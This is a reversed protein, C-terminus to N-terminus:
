HLRIKFVVGNNSNGGNATTGCLNGASDFILGAEPNGGDNGGTFSYLVSETYGGGAAPSLKFVVGQNHAGGAFTTGFLNGASDTILGGWPGAGDNGGTFSYLVSEDYGGSTNSSLKFVTGYDFTGGAGTTSYLNGAGDMILAARPGGGDGLGTFNYLISESYNGGGPALKFVTGAGAFASGAGATTGFLNGASDVILGAIPEGGDNFGSFTYNFGYLVTETYIGGAGPSLQFVVGANDIDGEATTGYLSGVSDLLLGAEPNGGDSGPGFGIGNFSHLVTEIYGGGGAPSLKFVTGKDTNIGGGSLTTGYLNGSRDMVLEAVPRTGDPAGVFSHLVSETYGHSATPALMFVAGNGGSGGGWTTGYLNGSIDMMLAAEPTAADPSGLFSYLVQEDSECAVQVNTVVGSITGSGSSVSCLQQNPESSVTVSYSGGYPLQTNFTFTGNTSLTLADAGNDDLMIQAGSNLGSLTGGITYSSATCKVAVNNVNAAVSSGNGTSVLCSQGTPQSSVTVSYSGGNTVPAAFTFPGNATVTLSDVGNNLLTVQQGTALGSLVGGITDSPRPGSGGGGCAVLWMSLGILALCRAMGPM